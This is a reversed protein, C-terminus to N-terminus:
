ASTSDTDGNDGEPANAMWELAEAESMGLQEILIHMMQTESMIVTDPWENKLRDM